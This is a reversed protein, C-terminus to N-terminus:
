KEGNQGKGEIEIEIELEDLLPETITWTKEGRALASYSKSPICPSCSPELTLLTGLGSSTSDSYARKTNTKEYLLSLCFGQKEEDTTPGADSSATRAASVLETIKGRFHQPFPRPRPIKVM